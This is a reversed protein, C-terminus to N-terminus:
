STGRADTGTGGKYLKKWGSDTLTIKAAANTTKGQGTVAADGIKYDSASLPTGNVKLDFTTGPIYTSTGSQRSGVTFSLPQQVFRLEYTKPTTSGDKLSIVKNVPEKPEVTYTPNNDSNSKENTRTVTFEAYNFFQGSSTDTDKYDTHNIAYNKEEFRLTVKENKILDKIGAKVLEDIDISFPGSENTVFSRSLLLPADAAEKTISVGIEVDKLATPNTSELTTSDIVSVPYIIKDATSADIM